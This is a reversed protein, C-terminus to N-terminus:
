YDLLTRVEEVYGYFLPNGFSYYGGVEIPDHNINWWVEDFEPTIYVLGEKTVIANFVHDFAVNFNVEYGRVYIIGMKWNKARARSALTEAFFTRNSIDNPTLKNTNDQKLWTKLEQVSPTQWQPSNITLMNSLLSFLLIIVFAIAFFGIIGIAIRKGRGKAQQRPEAYISRPKLKHKKPHEGRPQIWEYGCIQCRLNATERDFSLVGISGSSCKPCRDVRRETAEALKRKKSYWFPEKPLGACQHNEPLKHDVCFYDQCYSCRFPLDLKKGCIQCKNEKQPKISIPKGYGRSRDLFAEIKAWTLEKEFKLEQWREETYQFDPHADKKRWEKEILTQWSADKIIRKFDPINVLKPDLHRKCFWRGCYSCQYVRKRSSVGEKVYCEPCIDL